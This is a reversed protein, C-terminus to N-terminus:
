DSFYEEALGVIRHWGWVRSVSGPETGDFDAPVLGDLELPRYGLVVGGTNAITEFRTKGQELVGRGAIDEAAPPHDGLWDLLGVQVGVRDRLGFAPVKMVRGCALRNDALPVAWFQGARLYRNSRPAFPYALEQSMGVDDGGFRCQEIASGQCLM